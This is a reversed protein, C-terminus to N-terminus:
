SRRNHSSWHIARILWGDPSRTLVILEAGASDINRGRFTGATTSTSTAWAADGQVVVRTASRVSRTARVFAIDAALHHARYEERTEVDGSELVIADPALLALVAASDGAQLAARWRELTRVVEASDGAAMAAGTDGLAPARRSSVTSSGAIPGRTQSEVPRSAGLLGALLIATALYSTAPRQASAHSQNM